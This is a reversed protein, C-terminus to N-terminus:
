TKKWYKFLLRRYLTFSTLLCHPEATKIFQLVQRCCQFAIGLGSPCRAYSGLQGSLPFLTKSFHPFFVMVSQAARIKNTLCCHVPVESYLFVNYLTIMSLTWHGAWVKSQGLWTCKSAELKRQKAWCMHLWSPKKQFQYINISKESVTHLSPIAWPQNNIACLPCSQYINKQSFSHCINKPGIVVRTHLTEPRKVM